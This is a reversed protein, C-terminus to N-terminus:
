DDLDMIERSLKRVSNCLIAFKIEANNSLSSQVVKVHVEMDGKMKDQVEKRKDKKKQNMIDATRNRTTLQRRAYHVVILCILIFNYELNTACVFLHLEGTISSLMDPFSFVFTHM